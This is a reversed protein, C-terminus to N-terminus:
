SVNRPLLFRWLLFISNHSIIFANEEGMQEKKKKKLIWNSFIIWSCLAAELIGLCSYYVAGVTRLGYVRNGWNHILHREWSVMIYIKKKKKRNTWKTQKYSTERFLMHFIFKLRFLHQVSYESELGDINIM